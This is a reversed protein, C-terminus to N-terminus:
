VKWALRNISFFLYYILQYYDNCWMILIIMLQLRVDSHCHCNCSCTEALMLGWLSSIMGFSTLSHCCVGQTHQTSCSHTKNNDNIWSKIRLLVITNNKKKWLNHPRARLRIVFTCCKLLLHIDQINITMLVPFLTLSESLIISRHM